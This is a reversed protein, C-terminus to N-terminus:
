KATPWKYGYNDNSLVLKNVGRKVTV